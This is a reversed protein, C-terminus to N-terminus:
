DFIRVIAPRFFVVSRGTLTTFFVERMELRFVSTEALELSAANSFDSELASRLKSSEVQLSFMGLSRARALRFSLPDKSAGLSTVLFDPTTSSVEHTESRDAVACYSTVAGKALASLDSAKKSSRTTFCWRPLYGKIRDGNLELSLYGCIEQTM